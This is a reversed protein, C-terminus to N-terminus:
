KFYEHLKVSLFTALYVIYILTAVVPRLPGTKIEISPLHFMHFSNKRVRLVTVATPVINSQPCDSSVTWYRIIMCVPVASKCTLVAPIPPPAHFQDVAVM